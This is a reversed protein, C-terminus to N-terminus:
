AERRGDFPQAQDALSRTTQEPVGPDLVAAAGIELPVQPDPVLLCRLPEQRDLDRGTQRPHLGPILAAERLVLLPHPAVSIPLRARAPAVALLEAAPHAVPLDAPQLLVHRNMRHSGPAPAGDTDTRVDGLPLAHLLRQRLGVAALVLEQRHEGVLQAVRQSGDGVGQLEEAEAAGLRLRQRTDQRHEFALDAVQRAEDIVQEIDRAQRPPLDRELLLPHVQRPQGSLRDLVLLVGRPVAPGCEGELQRLLREPDM